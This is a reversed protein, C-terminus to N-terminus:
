YFPITHCSRLPPLIVCVCVTLPALFVSVSVRLGIICMRIPRLLHLTYCCSACFVCMYACGCPWLIRCECVKALIRYTQKRSRTRPARACKKSSYSPADFELCPYLFNLFNVHERAILPHFFPHAERVEDMTRFPLGSRQLELIGQNDVLGERKVAAACTCLGPVIEIPIGM